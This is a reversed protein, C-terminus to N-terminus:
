LPFAPAAIALAHISHTGVLVSSYSTALLREEAPKHTFYWLLRPPFEMRVLIAGVWRAAM